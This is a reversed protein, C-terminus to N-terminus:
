GLTNWLNWQYHRVSSRHSISVQTPRQKWCANLKFFWYVREWSIIIGYLNRLNFFTHNEDLEWLGNIRLVHQPKVLDRFTLQPVELYGKSQRHKAVILCKNFHMDFLQLLFFSGFFTYVSRMSQMKKKSQTENNRGSNSFTWLLEVNGGNFFSM